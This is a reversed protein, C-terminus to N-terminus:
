SAQQEEATRFRVIGVFEEVDHGLVRLSVASGHITGSACFPREPPARATRM